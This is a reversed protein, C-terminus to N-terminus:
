PLMVARYFKNGSVPNQDIWLYPSSNLLLTTTTTWVNLDPSTQIQYTRGITGTIQLGPYTNLQLNAPSVVQSQPDFAINRIRNNGADAVFIMGQSFCGGSANSFRALYGPGNAYGSQSFNGALTVVNTQANMKRICSGCVFYINGQNDSFMSSIGGYSIGGYFAANTGVGDASSYYYNGNGAITTV